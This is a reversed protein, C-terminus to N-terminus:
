YIEPIIYDLTRVYSSPFYGVQDDCKGKWWGNRYGEQCLVIVEQGERFSIHECDQPDFDRCAVARLQRYPWELKTHEELREFNEKLSSHQYNEILAEISNFYKSLSLFYKEESGTIDCCIKMHKVTNDTKLSLAFRDRDDRQSRIRVLYTGNRRHELATSAENRDMEGVFWLKNSLQVDSHLIHPPPPPPAGCRGSTAICEKHIAIDCVRCRYGQFILGKLYKSCRNCTVPKSFTHMEFRHNTRALSAPRVNDVADRLAKIMKEKIEISRAYITYAISQNHKVLHWQYSWRAERNLLARNNFNEIRYEPLHLMDRYAFQNGKIQKCLIMVKDFIFVYRNRIKQDDHAKIKLEADKILRGCNELKIESSVDWEVINEQLKKIVALHESDRAAENIYGAVDLMVERARKLEQYEEHNPDTLEILKELLLHYKLIRQMPVSLVDRLKFRGNNDEKECKIIAQNLIEDKDCFDQLLACAYSLNGCYTGYVLFRERWAMFIGGLRVSKDTGVKLLQSLFGTHIEHLENIKCFVIPRLEPRLHAQLPKMFNKKLKNLVEVYNHETEVLEKIVYDRKELPPHTGVFESHPVQQLSCLDQYIEEGRNYDGYEEYEVVNLASRTPPEVSKLSQYIDEEERSQVNQASFGPINSKLSKPSLSLKSITCLVKHFNTLDFLMLEEFLDSEKIGFTVNCTRLFLRINRLCLFQAMAPKLNVDKMDICGPDIKNLLTCLLVGDRLTNALDVIGANPWNARHDSRLVDWQTLWSACERWLEDSTVYATAM